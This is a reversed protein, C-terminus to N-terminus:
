KGHAAIRKKEVDRLLPQAAGASAPLHSVASVRCSATPVDGLRHGQEAWCRRPGSRERGQWAANSQMSMSSANGDCGWEEANAESLQM